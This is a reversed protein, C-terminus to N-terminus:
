LGARRAPKKERSGVVAELQQKKTWDDLVQVLTRTTRNSLLPSYLECLKPLQEPTHEAHLAMITNGWAQWSDHRLLVDPNDKIAQIDSEETDQHTSRGSSKGNKALNAGESAWHGRLRDLHNLAGVKVLIEGRQAKGLARALSAGAGTTGGDFFDSRRAIAEILLDEAGLQADPEGQIKELALSLSANAVRASVADNQTLMYVTKWAQKHPALIIPNEQIRANNWWNQNVWGEGLHQDLLAGMALLGEDWDAKILKKLTRMARSDRLDLYELIIPLSGKAWAWASDKTRDEPLPLCHPSNSRQVIDNSNM